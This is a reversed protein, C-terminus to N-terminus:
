ISERISIPQEANVVTRCGVDGGTKHDALPIRRLTVPAMHWSMTEIKCLVM